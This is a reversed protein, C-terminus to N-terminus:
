RPIRGFLPRKKPAPVYGGGKCAPCKVVRGSSLRLEGRCKCRQCPDMRPM